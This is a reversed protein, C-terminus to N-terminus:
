RSPKQPNPSFEAAGPRARRNVGVTISKDVM